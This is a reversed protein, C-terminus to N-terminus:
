SSTSPRTADRWVEKAPNQDRQRRVLLAAGAALALAVVTKM